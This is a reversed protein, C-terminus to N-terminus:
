ASHELVNQNIRIKKLNNLLVEHFITPRNSCGNAHVDYTKEKNKRQKNKVVICWRQIYVFKMLYYKYSGECYAEVHELASM